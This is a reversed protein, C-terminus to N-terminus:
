VPLLASLEFCAKAFEALIGRDQQVTVAKYESSVLAEIGQLSHTTGM